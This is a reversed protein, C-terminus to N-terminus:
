ATGSLINVAVGGGGRTTVSGCLVRTELHQNRADGSVQEGAAKLFPLVAWKVQGFPLGRPLCIGSRPLALVPVGGEDRGQRLQELIQTANSDRGRDQAPLAKSFIFTPSEASPARDEKGPLRVSAPYGGCGAPDTAPQRAGEGAAALDGEPEKKSRPPSLAWCGPTSLPPTEGPDRPHSGGTNRVGDRPTKLAGCARGCRGKVEWVPGGHEAPERSVETDTESRLRPWWTTETDMQGQSACGWTEARLHLPGTSGAEEGSHAQLELHAAEWTEGNNAVLISVSCHPEHPPQQPRGGM